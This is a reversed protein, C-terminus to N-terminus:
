SSGGELEFVLAQFREACIAELSIGAKPENFDLAAFRGLDTDAVTTAPKPAPKTVPRMGVENRREIRLKESYGKGLKERIKKNVFDTTRYATTFSFDKSQGKTGIRGWACRVLTPSLRTVVWYKRHNVERDICEFHQLEGVNM